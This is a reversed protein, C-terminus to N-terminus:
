NVCNTVYIMWVHKFYFELNLVLYECTLSQVINDQGTDM